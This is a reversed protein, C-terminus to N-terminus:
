LLEKCIQSVFGKESVHNAFNKEKDLSRGNVKKITDKSVSSTKFKSSTWNIQKKKRKMAQGKSIM